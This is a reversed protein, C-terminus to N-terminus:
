SPEDAFFGEVEPRTSDKWWHRVVWATTTAEVGQPLYRHVAFEVPQESVNHSLEVKYVVWSCGAHQTNGYQRPSPVPTLQIDHSGIMVRLIIIESVVLSHRYEEGDKSLEIQIALVSRGEPLRPLRCSFVDVSKQMKESELRAADAFILDLRPSLQSKQLDLSTGYEAAEAATLQQRPPLTGASAGGVELLLTEFPRMLIEATGGSQFESGSAALLEQREPFHSTITLPTGSAASLGIETGLLLTLKRATFHANNCFIFGHQGDFFSYGYPTNKWPDGIDRRPKLLVQENDRALAMIESLFHLDDDNLLNPDGWIQPFMLNGRGLDMVMAERWREKGMFNAWRIQSIWVGLSDKLLPPILSAFVTSQDLALTVADRYYLTPYWSTGSGELFLGSEFIVNGHEAWFPSRGVGWYWVVFVDPSIERTSKAIDILRNFM